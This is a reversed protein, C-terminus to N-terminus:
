PMLMELAKMEGHKDVQSKGKQTMLMELAKKQRYKIWGHSGTAKIVVQNELAHEMKRLSNEM